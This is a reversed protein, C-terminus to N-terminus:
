STIRTVSVDASQLFQETRVPDRGRDADTRVIHVLRSIGSGAVLKACDLCTAASSYATGGQIETWDSRLLANAEAHLSDCNAYGGAAGDCQWSYFRHPEHRATMGCIPKAGPRARECWLQCMGEHLMRPPPGNYGTSSVRNDQTVIVAGVQARVCRSRSAMVVAMELWIEDWSPRGDSAM